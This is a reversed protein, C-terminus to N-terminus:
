AFNETIIIVPQRRGGFSVSSERTANKLKENKKQQHLQNNIKDFIYSKTKKQKENERFLQLQTYAQGM